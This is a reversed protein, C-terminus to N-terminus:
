DALSKILDRQLYKSSERNAFEEGTRQRSFYGKMMELSWDSDWYSLLISSVKSVREALFKLLQVELM